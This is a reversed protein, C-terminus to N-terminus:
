KIKLSSLFKIILFPVFLYISELIINIFNGRSIFQMNFILLISFAILKFDNKTNKILKLTKHTLFGYILMGIIVGIIGFNLYFEGVNIYEVNVHAGYAGFMFNRLQVYPPYPKLAWASRPIFMYFIYLYSTGLAYPFQKPVFKMMYYYPYFVEINPMITDTLDYFSFKKFETGYRVSDRIVGIISVILFLIVLAKLLKTLKPRKGKKIYSYIIPAFVLIIIIYRSGQAFYIWTVFLMQLYLALRNRKQYVFLIMLIPVFMDGSAALLAGANNSYNYFNSNIGRGLLLDILNKNNLYGSVITLVFTIIFMIECMIIIKQSQRTSLDANNVINKNEKSDKKIKINSLMDGLFFAFYGVSFVVTAQKLGSMVPFISKYYKGQRLWIFPAIVLILFYLISILYFPDFVDVKKKIIIRYLIIFLIEATLLFLTIYDSNM